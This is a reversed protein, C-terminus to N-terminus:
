IEKATVHNRTLRSTELASWVSTAAFRRSPGTRSGEGDLYAALVPRRPDAVQAAVALTSLQDHDVKVEGNPNTRRFAMTCSRAMDCPVGGIM